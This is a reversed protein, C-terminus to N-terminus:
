TKVAGHIAASVGFRRAARVGLIDLIVLADRVV